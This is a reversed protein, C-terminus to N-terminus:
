SAISLHLTIQAAAAATFAEWDEAPDAQVRAHELAVTIARRSDHRNYAGDVEGRDGRNM